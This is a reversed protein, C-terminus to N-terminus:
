WRTGDHALHDDEHAPHGVCVWEQDSIPRLAEGCITTTGADNLEFHV